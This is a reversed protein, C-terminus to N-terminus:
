LWKWKNKKIKRDKWTVEGSQSHQISRVAVIMNAAITLPYLLAQWLPIKLDYYPILWVLVSILLCTGLMCHDAYPVTGLLWLLTVCLPGWFMIGLWVIVFTFPLLRFKFAAFLNKVFGEYAARSSHYMRCSVLDAAYTVRWRFGARTIKRALALDDVIEFGLAAHGGIADYTKRRFALLQGVANALAPNHLHYALALPNFTYMAWSFFPVLLREGWTHVEQRPYGSVMETDEGVFVAVIKKLMQPHHITDADTFTLIEGQAQRALQTCAWNKGLLVGNSPRGDLIRLNGPTPKEGTRTDSLEQLISRTQDTSQDDLVLIEFNPYDQALLSRVCNGINSEENRTPVLISVFPLESPTEHRRSRHIIMFNSLIIVLNFVQFLILHLILDHTLYNVM